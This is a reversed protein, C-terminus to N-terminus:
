KDPLSAEHQDVLWRAVDVLKLNTEQSAKTLAAFAQLGTLRDRQMLIGKAQGILDRSAIASQMQETASSGALAVAAHQALVEGIAVSDDTFARPEAGYLTLAGLNEGTVFLRFCLMSHVGLKLATPVFIPWQGDVALDDIVVTKHERIVTFLPGDGSETQLRDLTAVIDDTPMAPEVRKRKVLSVGAWRAGPVLHVSADVIAKLVDDSSTLSQMSVALDGLVEVLRREPELSSPM